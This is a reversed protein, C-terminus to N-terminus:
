VLARLRLLLGSIPIQRIKVEVFGFIEDAGQKTYRYWQRSLEISATDVFSSGIINSAVKYLVIKFGKGNFREHKNSLPIGNDSFGDHSLHLQGMGNDCHHSAFDHGETENRFKLHKVMVSSVLAPQNNRRKVGAAGMTLNHLSDFGYIDQGLLDMMSLYHDNSGISRRGNAIVAHYADLAAATCNSSLFSLIALRVKPVRFM